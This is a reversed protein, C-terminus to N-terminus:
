NDLLKPNLKSGDIVKVAVPVHTVQHYGRYVQAYSGKGIKKEVVYEGMTVVKAPREM